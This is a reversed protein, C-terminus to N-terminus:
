FGQGNYGGGEGSGSEDSGPKDGRHQSYYPNGDGSDSAKGDRNGGVADSSGVYARPIRSLGIGSESEPAVGAISASLAGGAGLKAASTAMDSGEAQLDGLLGTMVDAGGSLSTVIEHMAERDPEEGAGASGLMADYSQEQGIGLAPNLWENAAMERNSADPMQAVLTDKLNAPGGDSARVFMCIAFAERVGANEAKECRANVVAMTNTCLAEYEGDTFMHNQNASRNFIEKAFRENIATLYEPPVTAFVEALVNALNGKAASKVAAANAAYFMAGKVEDSGPMKAIAANVEGLLKAQDDAQVKSMTDRLSQPNQACESVLNHWESRPMADAAMLPSVCLALACAALSKRWELKM